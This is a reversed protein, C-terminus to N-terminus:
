QFHKLWQIYSRPFGWFSNAFMEVSRPILHLASKIGDM